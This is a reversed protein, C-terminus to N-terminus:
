KGNDDLLVTHHQGGSISTIKLKSCSTLLQPVFWTRTDEVGLHHYNNLGWGFVGVGEVRAYTCYASCWVDNFKIKGAGRIKRCYVKSPELVVKLGKRGGRSSFCEAVRGLQGQEGAGVSYIDGNSTLMCLHDAGSAIQLVSQNPLMELPKTQKKVTSSLGIVGNSD